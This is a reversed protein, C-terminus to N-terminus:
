DRPRRDAELRSLRITSIRTAAGSTASASPKSARRPAKNPREDTKKSSARLSIRTRESHSDRDTTATISATWDQSAATPTSEALSDIPSREYVSVSGVRPGCFACAAAPAPRAAHDESDGDPCEPRERRGQKRDALHERRSQEEETRERYRRENGREDGREGAADSCQEREDASRPDAHRDQTRECPAVDPQWCDAARAGGGEDALFREYYLLDVDGDAAHLDTALFPRRAGEEFAFWLQGFLLDFDCLDVAGRREDETSCSVGMTVRITKSATATNTSSTTARVIRITGCARAPTISLNPRYWRVSEGPRASTTGNTSRSRGSSSRRSCTTEKGGCGTIVSSLRTTLMSVTM